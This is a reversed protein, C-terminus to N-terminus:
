LLNLFMYFIYFIVSKREIDHVFGACFEIFIKDIKYNSVKLCYRTKVYTKAQKVLAYVFDKGPVLCIDRLLGLSYYDNKLYAFAEYYLHISDLNGQYKEKLFCSFAMKEEEPANKWERANMAKLDEISESKMPFM